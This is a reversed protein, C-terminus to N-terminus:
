FVNISQFMMDKCNQNSLKTVLRINAPKKLKNQWDIVVQGRTLKGHLEVNAYVEAVEKVTEPELLVSMALQDCLVYDPVGRSKLLAVANHDIDKM